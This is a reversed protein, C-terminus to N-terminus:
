KRRFLHIDSRLSHYLHQCRDIQLFLLLAWCPVLFSFDPSRLLIFEVVDTSTRFRLRYYPHSEQRVFSGITLLLPWDM